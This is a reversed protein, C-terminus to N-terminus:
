QYRDVFSLSRLGVNTVMQNRFFQNTQPNVDQSRAALTLNVKRIQNPSNGVPTTSLATPNTVGDVLDYTFQVDEVGLAIALRNGMNVRRVLRPLAPDTVVDIYYTVMNVRTATTPPFVGPTSQLTLINGDAAGPQNLNMPDGTAFAVVQSTPTTTVMQLATGFANSFLVLDGAKLGDVGTVPTAANVTMSSGDAAIAVLPNADLNLIPDAYMVTIIDSAQALLTPGMADGTMLATVSTAGGGFTLTGPGPRNVPTAGTGNPIQIGGLPISQGTQMIDRVMLSMGAQLGHNTESIVRSTGTLTMSRTLTEIASGIVVLTLVIAILSEGLTFGADSSEVSASSSTQHLDRM